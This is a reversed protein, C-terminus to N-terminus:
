QKENIDSRENTLRLTIQLDLQSIDQIKLDANSGFCHKIRLFPNFKYDRTFSYEDTVQNEEFIAKLKLPFSHPPSAPSTFGVTLLSNELKISVTVNTFSRFVVDSILSISCAPIFFNDQQPASIEVEASHIAAIKRIFGFEKSLPITEDSIKKVIEPYRDRLSLEADLKMAITFLSDFEFSKQILSDSSQKFENGKNSLRESMAGCIDLIQGFEDRGNDSDRLSLISGTDTYEALADDARKKIGHSMLVSIVGILILTIWNSFMFMKNSFLHKMFNSKAESSYYEIDVSYYNRSICGFNPTIEIDEASKIDDNSSYILSGGSVIYLEGDYGLHDFYDALMSMNFDLCIFSEGTSINNYDLKRVLTLVGTKPDISLLISKNLKRYNKYWSSSKYKELQKVNGGTLVSPNDTYITCEKVINFDSIGMATNQQLPYFAEYYESTSEYIHDLFSYIAENSYISKAISVASEIGMDMIQESATIVASESRKGKERSTASITRVATIFASSISLIILADVILFKIKVPTDKFFIHSSFKKKFM